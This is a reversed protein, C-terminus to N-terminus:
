RHDIFNWLLIKPGVGDRIVSIFLILLLYKNYLYIYYISNLFFLLLSTDFFHHQTERHHYKMLHWESLLRLNRSNVTLWKPCFYRHFAFIVLTTGSTLPWQQMVSLLLCMRWPNIVVQGLFHLVRKVALTKMKVKKVTVWKPSV